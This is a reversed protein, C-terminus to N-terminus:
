RAQACLVGQPADDGLWGHVAEVAILQQVPPPSGRCPPACTPFITATTLAEGAGPNVRVLTDWATMSADARPVRGPPPPARMDVGGFLYLAGGSRALSAGHRAAGAPFIAPLPDHQACAGASWGGGRTVHMDHTAHM